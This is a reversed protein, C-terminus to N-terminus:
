CPMVRIVLHFITIRITDDSLYRSVYRYLLYHITGARGTFMNWGPSKLHFLSHAHLSVCGLIAQCHQVYCIAIGRMLSPAILRFHSEFLWNINTM